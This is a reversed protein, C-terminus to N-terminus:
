VSCATLETYAIAVADLTNFCFKSLLVAYRARKERYTTWRTPSM